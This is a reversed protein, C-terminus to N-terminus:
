MMGCYLFNLADMNDFVRFSRPSFGSFLRLGSRKVCGLVSAGFFEIVRKRAKPSAAELLAPMAFDTKVIALANAM